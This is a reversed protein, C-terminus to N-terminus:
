LFIWDPDYLRTSDNSYNMKMKNQIVESCSNTQLIVKASANNTNNNGNKYTVSPSSINNRYDFVGKDSSSKDLNIMSSDRLICNREIACRYPSCRRTYVGCEHDSDRVASSCTIQKDGKEFDCIKSYKGKCTNCFYYADSRLRNVSLQGIKNHSESINNPSPFLKCDESCASTLIQRCKYCRPKLTRQCQQGPGGIPRFPSSGDKGRSKLECDWRVYHRVCPKQLQKDDINVIDLHCISDLVGNPKDVDTDHLTFVPENEDDGESTHLYMPNTLEVSGGNEELRVHGIVKGRRRWVVFGVILGIISLVSILLVIVITTIPLNSQSSSKSAESAVKFSPTECRMGIFGEPCICTPALSSDPNPVCQGGNFCPNRNCSIRLECRPGTWDFQCLCIAHGYHAQCVGGHLCYQDRCPNLAPDVKTECHSGEYEPPCKCTVNKQGFSVCTGGNECTIELCDRSVESSCWQGTFGTNCDCVEGDPSNHCQGHECYDLCKSNECRNGYFHPPCACYFAPPQVSADIRCIGDNECTLTICQECWTGTFHESCNCYESGSHNKVCSGKNVCYHDDCPEIPTECQNGTWEPPCSCTLKPEGGPNENQPDPHCQGGNKCFGSCGIYIAIHGKICLLASAALDRRQLSVNELMVHFLHHLVNM